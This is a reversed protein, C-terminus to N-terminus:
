ECVRERQRVCVCLHLFHRSDMRLVLLLLGRLVALALMLPLFAQPCIRARARQMHPLLNKQKRKFVCKDTDTVTDTDTDTDSVPVCIVACRHAAPISGLARRM